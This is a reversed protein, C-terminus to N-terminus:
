RRRPPTNKAFIWIVVLVAAVIVKGVSFEAVAGPVMEMVRQVGELELAVLVLEWGVLVAVVLLGGRVAIWKAVANRKPHRWAWRAVKPVGYRIVGLVAVVLTARAAVGLPVGALKEFTQAPATVMAAGLGVTAAVSAVALAAVPGVVLAVAVAVIVQEVKEMKTEMEDGRQRSEESSAGVDVPYAGATM